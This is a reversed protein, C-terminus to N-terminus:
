QQCFESLANQPNNKLSAKDKVPKRNTDNLPDLDVYCLYTCAFLIQMFTAVKIKTLFAAFSSTLFFILCHMGSNLQFTLFPTLFMPLQKLNTKIKVM